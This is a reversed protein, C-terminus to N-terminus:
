GPRRRAVSLLVLCALMALSWESQSREAACSGCGGGAVLDRDEGASVPWLAADRDFAAPDTLAMASLYFLVGEWVHPPAVRNSWTLPNKSAVVYVEGFHLTDATAVSALLEVAHRAKDRAGGERGYLAAAVVNKATYAGGEGKGELLSVIAEMDADLQHQLRADTPDLLRAPWVAWGVTGHGAGPEQLERLERFLGHETDWYTAFIAKRLERRRKAYRGASELEGVERALREGATLAAHVATAGQLESTLELHDDENAPAPLGTTAERWRVLLELALRASPWVKALFTAREAPELHAAHLALSWLHLGTNDIEFRIPGGVEGNAFYNMEWADAPFEQAGTDPDVPVHPTLLFNGTTATKRPLGAYWEDRQTVWHGLGAIDLAANFFAGDRPWDLYYPPQRTVSAVIAGSTRDRAVYVNVLSRLAVRRVREGLAPDPLRAGALAQAAAQEAASQRAELSQSGVSALAKRAASLTSGFAILMSGEAVDGQFALPAILAGNTQAAAVRSGSLQGDALDALADQPQHVWGHAARIPELADKCRLAGAVGPDLPPPTNPFAQPLELINDALADVQACLPTADSGLQFATPAPETTVLAAVGPEYEADLNAVLTAVDGDNPAATKMLAEVSGFDIKTQDAAAAFISDIVARDGPHFHVIASTSADWLALFDNKSDLAWDAVPLQPILSLTPSLNEYVVLSVSAVPSGTKRVVRVSRTLVDADASVVDTLTVELGLDARAFKTVPVPADDRTYGQTVTWAADRFFSLVPGSGSEVLLGLYSGMGDLAGMHPKSRADLANSSIYALQDYYSPSPWSLVSLDGEAGIGVTLGGHGAVANTNSAGFLHEMGDVTSTASARGPWFLLALALGVSSRGMEGM